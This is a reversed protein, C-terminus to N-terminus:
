TGIYFRKLNEYETNIALILEHEGQMNDPHFIKLLAKYRRKLSDTDGVGKFFLKVNDAYSMSRRAERYVKDRYVTKERQFREQDIALQRTEKELIQWQCDFLNKQNELQQRLLRNKRQQKELMGKQIDILRREDELEKQMQELRINEQFLWRKKEEMEDPTMTNEFVTELRYEEGM